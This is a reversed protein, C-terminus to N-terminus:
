KESYEIPSGMAHFPEIQIVVTRRGRPLMKVEAVGNKFDLSSLVPPDFEAEGYATRLYVDKRLTSESATHGEADVLTIRVKIWTRGNFVSAHQLDVSVAPNSTDPVVLVPAPEKPITQTETAVTQTQVVIPTSSSSVSAPTSAQPASSSSAVAVTTPRNAVRQARRAAVADKTTAASRTSRTVTKKSSSSAKTITKGPETKFKSAPHQEQIYLMPNVSYDYGREQHFGKNIAQLSSLGANLAESYSFAWYPFWPATDRDLQFHLHPGTAAGTKGSLGIQQGKQVLDGVQVSQASLHAYTSHLVTEYEPNEPDPMHPHRVVIFLGFGGKDEGVREVQGAAMSRVPTGEPVRIDVGIHSGEGEAGTEYSGMFGVSYVDGEPSHDYDKKQESQKYPPLPILLDKPVQRYTNEGGNGGYTSWRTYDPVHSIPAVTGTYTILSDDFQGLAAKWFAYWGYDGLMNGTVFATLSFVAVLFSSKQKMYAVNHGKAEKRIRLHKKSFGAKKASSLRMRKMRNHTHINV